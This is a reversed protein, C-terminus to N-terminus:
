QTTPKSITWPLELKKNQNKLKQFIDKKHEDM